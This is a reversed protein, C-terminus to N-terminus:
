VGNHIGTQEGNRDRRLGDWNVRVEKTKGPRTLGGGVLQRKEIEARAESNSRATLGWFSLFSVIGAKAEPIRAGIKGLRDWPLAAIVPIVRTEAPAYGTLAVDSPFGPKSIQMELSRTLVVM